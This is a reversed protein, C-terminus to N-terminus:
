KYVWQGDNLNKMLKKKLEINIQQSNWIEILENIKDHTLTTGPELTKRKTFLNTYVQNIQKIKNVHKNKTFVKSKKKDCEGFYYSLYYTDYIKRLNNSSLIKYSVFLYIKKDQSYKRIYKKSTSIENWVLNIKEVSVDIEVGLYKYLDIFNNNLLDINEFESEFEQSNFDFDFITDLNINLSNM